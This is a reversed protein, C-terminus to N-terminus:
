LKETTFKLSGVMWGTNFIKDFDLNDDDFRCLWAYSGTWTLPIGNAPATIFVIQGSGSLTFDQVTVAASTTPIYATPASGIEQQFGAVRITFDVAGSVTFALATRDGNGSSGATAVASFRQTNLAASTPVIAAYGNSIAGAGSLYGNASVAVNAWSGATLRAYFSSCVAISTYAGEWVDAEIGVTGTATGSIRIELYTLGGEVGSGVITRTLGALADVTWGTPLVGGSGIAGTTIAGPVSYHVDNTRVASSLAEVGIATTRYVVPVVSPVFVPETFGGRSRVLQFVTTVGDGTGLAQNTVTFDDPDVYGFFGAPGGLSNYFGALTDAETLGASQRLVEFSYEYRYKPYSWYAIRTEQGGISPQRGTSQIISRKPFGITPLSPFAPLTM